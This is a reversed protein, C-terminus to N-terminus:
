RGKHTGFRGENDDYRDEHRWRRLHLCEGRVIYTQLLLAVCDDKGRGERLHERHERDPADRIERSELFHARDARVLGVLLAPRILRPESSRQQSGEQSSSEIIVQIVQSTFAFIRFLSLPAKRRRSARVLQLIIEYHRRTIFQFQFWM